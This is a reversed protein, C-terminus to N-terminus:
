ECFLEEFGKHIGIISCNDKVFLKESSSIVSDISSLPGGECTILVSKKNKLMNKINRLIIKM